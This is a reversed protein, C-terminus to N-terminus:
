PFGSSPIPKKVSCSAKFAEIHSQCKKQDGKNEELCKKLAEVDCPSMIKRVGGSIKNSGEEAEM